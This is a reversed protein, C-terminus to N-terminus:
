KVLKLGSKPMTKGTVEICKQALYEQHFGPQNAAGFVALAVAPKKAKMAAEAMTVIPRWESSGLKTALQVFEDFKKQVILVAAKFGLAKGIQHEFLRHGALEHETEDLVRRVLELHKRALRVLLRELKEDQGYDEWVSFEVADRIFVEPDIGTQEWDLASYREIADSFVIGIDGSSDDAREQAILCALLMARHLAVSNMLNKGVRKLVKEFCADLREALRSGQRENYFDYEEVIDLLEDAYPEPSVPFKPWYGTRARHSLRNRPTQRMAETLDRDSATQDFVKTKAKSM